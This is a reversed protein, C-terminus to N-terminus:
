GKLASRLGAAVQEQQAQSIGPYLPLSLIQRSYAEARPFSGSDQGLFAYAPLQHIPAPYHIGAGIGAANLEGLIRDREPVRVVFLHFVHGNGPLTRPLVVEDLDDLLQRYFNAAAARQRNWEDLLTLKATLVVAQLTDLRSNVGFDLHQYRATGGHNRLRLLREALQPNNTMVAGADGFAGLNKGPYFSTAAVDGLGGAKCGLRTAGQAQAMDEILVVEPPVVNRIREMPAAQGYLHVGIVAKTKSGVKGAVAEPALLFDEDCDALVLDAGARLVAGATAVFTNAPVIVEDGSGVGAARLAMEIADTGNAVGVAFQVRCYAAWAAEFEAVQPGLIFSSEAIVRNFGERIIDNIQQQQHSLDVLPVNQQIM